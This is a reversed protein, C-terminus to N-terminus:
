PQGPELAIEHNLRATESRRFVVLPQRSPSLPSSSDYQDAGEMELESFRAADRKTRKAVNPWSRHFICGESLVPPVRCDVLFLENDHFWCTFREIDCVPSGSKDRH